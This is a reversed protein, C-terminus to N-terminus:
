FLALLFTHFNCGTSPNMQSFISQKTKTGMSVYIELLM